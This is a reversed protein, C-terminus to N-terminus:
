ILYSIESYDRWYEFWELDTGPKASFVGLEM